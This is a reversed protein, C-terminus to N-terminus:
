RDRDHEKKRKPVNDEDEDDVEPIYLNSSKAVVDTTFSNSLNVYIPRRKCIGAFMETM